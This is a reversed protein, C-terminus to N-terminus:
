PKRPPSCDNTSTQCECEGIATKMAKLEVYAGCHYIRGDAEFLELVVKSTALLRELGAINEAMRTQFEARRKLIHAKLRAHVKQLVTVAQELETELV